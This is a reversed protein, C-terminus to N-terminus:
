NAGAGASSGEDADGDEVLVASLGVLNFNMPQAAGAPAFSVRLPDRQWTAKACAPTAPADPASATPSWPGIKKALIPRRAAVQAVVAYLQHGGSTLGCYAAYDRFWVVQSVAPDYDPLKMATVHGNSRDIMIWPGRQWIWHETKDGPLSDNLRLARRVVFSRDTIDHAEGTTWDKVKDDVILPRVHLTKEDPAAGSPDSTIGYPVRKGTGIAVIHPKAHGGARLPTPLLPLALLLLLSLAPTRLRLQM